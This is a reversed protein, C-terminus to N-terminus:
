GAYAVATLRDSVARWRLDDGYQWAGRGVVSARTGSSPAAAIATVQWEEAQGIDNFESGSQDVRIPRSTEATEDDALVALATPSSWGVDTATLSAPQGPDALSLPRWSTLRIRDGSRDILGLGLERRGTPKQRVAAFRVGDPAISFSVFRTGKDVMDAPVPASRKGDWVAIRQRGDRDGAYWLEGPPGVYDPRILDTMDDVVVTTRGGDLPAEILTTGQQTVVAARTSEQSVALSQASPQQRLPGDLRVLDSGGAGSIVRVVGKDDIGFLAGVPPLDPALSTAIDLSVIGEPNQERVPFPEGNVSLRLGTLTPLQRLTWVMQTILRTRQDDSLGVVADTLSVEVVGNADVSASQVNLRTQAPIASVVAPQLWESPGRLLAQLLTTPTQNGRPVFVPDPVLRSYEPAFYYTNVNTYFNEFTYQTLVIGDPPKSIRWEGNGDRVLGFDLTLTRDIRSFAGDPGVRGYLPATLTASDPTMSVSYGDAYVLVQSEPRWADAVDSALYQRAVQYGPQYNAMAQLFGEVVTHPSAGPQPPEPVVQVGVDAQQDLEPHVEIPGRTPISSCASGLLVLSLLVALTRWRM